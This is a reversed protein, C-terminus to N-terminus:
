AAVAAEAWVQHAVARFQRLTPRRILHYQVNFCNYVAAHIALFRQAQAQSKSAEIGRQALLEEVDRISLTFGFYLWVADHIM